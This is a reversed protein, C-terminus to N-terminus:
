PALGASVNFAYERYDEVQSYHGSQTPLMEGSFFPIILSVYGSTPVDNYQMAVSASPQGSPNSGIEESTYYKWPHTLPDAPHTANFGYDFVM